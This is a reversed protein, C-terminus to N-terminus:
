CRGKKDERHCCESGTGSCTKLSRRREIIDRFGQSTILATRAVNRTILANTAVTTGHIILEVESIFKDVPMKYAKAADELSDLIGQSFDSPTTPVKSEALNGRDDWIISDTFTGGIDVCVKFM